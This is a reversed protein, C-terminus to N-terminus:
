DAGAGTELDSSEGRHSRVSRTGGSPKRDLGSGCAGPAAMPRSARRTVPRPRTRSTGQIQDHLLTVAMGCPHRFLGFFPTRSSPDRGSLLPLCWFGALASVIPWLCSRLKIGRPMRLCPAWFVPTSAFAQMKLANLWRAVMRKAGSECAILSFPSLPLIMKGSCQGKPCSIQLARNVPARALCMRKLWAGCTTM